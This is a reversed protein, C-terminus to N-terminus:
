WAMTTAVVAINSLNRIGFFIHYQKKSLAFGNQQTQRKSKKHIKRYICNTYVQELKKNQYTFV